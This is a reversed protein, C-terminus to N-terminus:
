NIYFRREFKTTFPLSNLQESFHKELSLLNRAYDFQVSGM